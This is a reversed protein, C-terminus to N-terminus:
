QAMCREADQWGGAKTNLSVHQLEVSIAVPSVEVQDDAVSNEGALHAPVTPPVPRGLLDHIGGGSPLAETSADRKKKSICCRYIVLLCCCAAAAAVALGGSVLVAVTAELSLSAPLLPALETSQLALNETPPPAPEVGQLALNESSPPPPMWPQRFPAAAEVLPQSPPQQLPLHSAPSPPPQPTPMPPTSLTTPQVPPPTAHLLEYMISGEVTTGEAIFYGALCSVNASLCLKFLAVELCTRKIRGGCEGSISSYLWGTNEGPWQPAPPPESTCM